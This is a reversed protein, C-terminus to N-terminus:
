KADHKRRAAANGGRCIYQTSGPGVTQPAVRSRRNEADLGALVSIEHNDHAASRLAGELHSLALGSGGIGPAAGRAAM